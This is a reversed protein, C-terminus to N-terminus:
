VVSKRDTVVAVSLVITLVVGWRPSLPRGDPFVHLLVPVTFFYPAFGWIAVWAAVAGLAGEGNSHAAYTGALMYPGVLAPVLMLWGVLNRPRARVILAGVAPWVTALAVDSAFIVEVGPETAPALVLATVASVTSVAAAVVAFAFLRRDAAASPSTVVTM